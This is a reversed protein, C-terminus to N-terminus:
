MVGYYGLLGVILVCAMALCIVVMLGLACSEHAASLRSQWAPPPGFLSRDIDDLIRTLDSPVEPAVWVVQLGKATARAAAAEADEADVPLVVPEGNPKLCEVRWRKM